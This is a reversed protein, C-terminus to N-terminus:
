NSNFWRSRHVTSRTFVRQDHWDHSSVSIMGTTHLCASWALRAFVRQDHLDHSSVSIMGTTRLRASWALRAFVRQDHWHWIRSKPGHTALEVPCKLMEDKVDPAFTALPARIQTIFTHQDRLNTRATNTHVSSSVIHLPPMLQSCREAGDEIFRSLVQSLHINHLGKGEPVEKEVDTSVNIGVNGTCVKM